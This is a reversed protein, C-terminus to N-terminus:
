RVAPPAATTGSAPTNGPSDSKVPNSHTISLFAYLAFVVVAVFFTWKAMAAFRKARGKSWEEDNHLRSLVIASMTQLGCFISVLLLIWSTALVGLLLLSQVAISTIFTGSLALVGAALAILQKAFDVAITDADSRPQSSSGEPRRRSKGSRSEVRDGPGAGTTM